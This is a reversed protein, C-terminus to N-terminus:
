KKRSSAETKLFDGLRDLNHNWLARRAAVWREVTALAGQTMQYTRVRGTKGSKVLGANELVGLHKMVSPLAMDLPAALESVSAPGAHLRDIMARRTSDSLAQFVLDLAAPKEANV